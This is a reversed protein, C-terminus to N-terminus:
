NGSEMSTIHMINHREVSSIAFMVLLIIASAVCYRCWAHIVFGELYTLWASVGLGGLLLVWQLRRLLAGKVEGFKTARLFGTLALVAYLAAGFAATPIKALFPIGFGHATPQAAVQECGNSPGCGMDVYNLDALTLHLAVAIGIFSLIFLLRNSLKANM